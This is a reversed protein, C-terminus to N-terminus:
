GVSDPFLRAPRNALYEPEWGFFDARQIFRALRGFDNVDVQGEHYGLRDVFREGHWTASGEATLTVEYMPCTGFCLGRRLTVSTMGGRYEEMDWGERNRRGAGFMEGGALEVLLCDQLRDPGIMETVPVLRGAQRFSLLPRRGSVPEFTGSSVDPADNHDNPILNTAFSAFAVHRGDASIALDRSFTSEAYNVSIRRTTESHLNRRFVDVAGNTDGAVLNSAWSSFAVVRGSFSLDVTESVSNGQQGASGVSVRTTAGTALDHRYADFTSNTDEAVLPVDTTLCSYIRQFGRPVPPSRM